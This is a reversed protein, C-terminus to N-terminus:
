VQWPASFDNPTLWVQFPCITITQSSVTVIHHNRLALPSKLQKKIPRVWYRTSGSVYDMQHWTPTEDMRSWDLTFHVQITESREVLWMYYTYIMPRPGELELTICHLLTKPGSRVHSQSGTVTVSWASENTSFASNTWTRTVTLKPSWCLMHICSPHLTQM